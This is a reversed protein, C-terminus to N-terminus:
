RSSRGRRSLAGLARSVADDSLRLPRKLLDYAALAEKDLWIKVKGSVGDGPRARYNTAHHAVHDEITFYYLALSRRAQGPPFRLPEPHGHLSDADTTFLLIRNAKPDIRTVCRQMDKSWLELAGGWEPQWEPNLYLLLNVRRRWGPKSHHASFDSHINLFGGPLSRHLGGGDMVDDAHLDAIGTVASVFSVFRESCLEERLAQLSPGWHHVDTHGFKRENLHLYNTWTVEPIAEFEDYITQLADPHLVDELTIHPYPAAGAYRERLEPVREELPTLDVLPQLTPRDNLM